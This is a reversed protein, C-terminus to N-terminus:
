VSVMEPSSAFTASTRRRRKIQEARRPHMCPRRPLIKSLRLIEYLYHAKGSLGLLFLDGGAQIQQKRLLVLGALSATTTEQVKRLDLVVVGGAYEHHMRHGLKLVDDHRLEAKPYILRTLVSHVM